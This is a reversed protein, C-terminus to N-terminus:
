NAVLNLGFSLNKTKQYVERLLVSHFLQAQFTIDPMDLFHGFPTIRFMTKQKSSLVAKIESIVSSKNWQQVKSGFRRDPKIIFHADKVRSQRDKKTGAATRKIRSSDKVQPSSRLGGDVSTSSSGVNGGKVNPEANDVPVTPTRPSRRM